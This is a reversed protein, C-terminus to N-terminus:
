EWPSPADTPGFQSTTRWSCVGFGGRAPLRREDLCAACLWKGGWGTAPVTLKDRACDFCEAGLDPPAPLAPKATARASTAAGKLVKKASV